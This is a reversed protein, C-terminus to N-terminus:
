CRKTINNGCQAGGTNASKTEINGASGGQTLARLDGHVILQPAVYPKKKVPMETHVNM